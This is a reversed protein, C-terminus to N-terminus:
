PIIGKQRSTRKRTHAHTVSPILRPHGQTKNTALHHAKRSPPSRPPLSPFGHMPDHPHLQNDLPPPPAHNSVWPLFGFFDSMMQLLCGGGVEFFILKRRPVVVGYWVM